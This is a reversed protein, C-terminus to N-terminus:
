RLGGAAQGGKLGGVSRQLRRQHPGAQPERRPAVGARPGGGRRLLQQSRQGSVQLVAGLRAGAGAALRHRQRLQRRRRAALRRRAGLPLRVQARRVRHRLLRRRVALLLEAPSQLPRRLQLSPQRLPLRLAACLSRRCPACGRLGRRCAGGAVLELLAQVGGVIGQVGRRRSKGGRLVGPAARFRGRSRRLGARGLRHGLRLPPGGVALVPAACRRGLQRLGPLFIGLELGRQILQLAGSSAVRRLERGLGRRKPRQRGLRRLPLMLQAQADTLRLTGHVLRRPQLAGAGRGGAGQVGGQGPHRLLLALALRRRAQQSGLRAGGVQGAGRGRRRGLELHTAPLERPSPAM